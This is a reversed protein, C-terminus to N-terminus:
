SNKIVRIPKKKMIKLAENYTLLKEKAGHHQIVSEANTMGLKIAFEINNKKIIGSLFSSAFADGAGTTEVIKINHPKGYYIQNNEYVYIGNKGDTIAVIEPGLKSLKKLLNKIKDKGALICAEEKNLILINTKKLINKLYSKGKRALYSSINFAIKINNKNAYDAIKNLTKFSTEMMSSFYFWKTKLKKFNVESPKLNNNSGKFALVTRDHNKSDLIISFGTRENKSRAILSTDVKEKKLKKIVRESNHGLGIKGLFAVKHGLRVLAVATNTGGGGVTINLREILLKSGLPYAICEKNNKDHLMECLETRAFVDVTASGVTIIDYM